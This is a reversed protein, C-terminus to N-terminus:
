QQTTSPPPMTLSRCREAKDQAWDPQTGFRLTATLWLHGDVTVALWDHEEDLMTHDQDGCGFTDTLCRRIADTAAVDDAYEVTVPHFRVNPGVVYHRIPHLTVTDM